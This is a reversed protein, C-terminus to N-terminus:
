KAGLSFLLEQVSNVQAPANMEARKIQGFAMQTEVWLQGAVKTGNAVQYVTFQLKKQPPTSYANGLMVQAFLQERDKLAQACVVQNSSAEQIGYGLSVCRDILASKVAEPAQGAFVGEAQGSQTQKLLPVPASCGTITLGVGIVASIALARTIKELM